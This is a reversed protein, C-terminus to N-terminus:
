KLKVIVQEKDGSVVASQPRQFERNSHYPLGDNLDNIYKELEVATIEGNGNLDANGRLGKLFFYTFMGHQKAPYWNSVQDSKSSQFLTSNESTMFVDDVPLYVPSAGRVLVRGDGAQGSFCADVVVTKQKANLKAIDAYFRKMGYANEKNVYNPDCDYPVFFPQKSETSPAGHGVYYIFLDSSGDPRLFSKIKNRVYTKMVASTMLEDPDRPLINKPDYGMTKTLYERMIQADRKAFEVKPIDRNAYDCISIILAVANKNRTSTVPIDQEIDVSLTAVNGIIIQTDQKGKIVFDSARKQPKNFAIDLNERSDYSGRAENIQINVPVGTARNNTFVTFTIDRYEGPDLNGLTFNDKSEPSLFVNEGLQVNATVNKAEGQGTNQIRATIDVMERPEIRGNQSQDDIGVDVVALQPPQFKRTNFTINAPPYLDFGNGELIEVKIKVEQSSVNINAM